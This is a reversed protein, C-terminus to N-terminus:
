GINRSRSAVRPSSFQVRTERPNLAWGGRQATTVPEAVPLLRGRSHHIARDEPSFDRIEELRHGSGLCRAGCLRRFECLASDACDTRGKGDRRHLNIGYCIEKPRRNRKAPPVEKASRGLHAVAATLAGHCVCFRATIVPWSRLRSAQCRRRSGITPGVEQRTWITSAATPAEGRYDTDIRCGSAPFLHHVPVAEDFLPSHRQHCGDM